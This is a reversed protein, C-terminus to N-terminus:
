SLPPHPAPNIPANESLMPPHPAPNIPASVSLM